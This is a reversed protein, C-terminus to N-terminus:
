SIRFLKYFTLTFLLLTNRCECHLCEKLLTLYCVIVGRGSCSQLWLNVRNCVVRLLDLMIFLNERWSLCEFFWIFYISTLLCMLYYLLHFSYVRMPARFLLTLVLSICECGNKSSKLHYFEQDMYIRYKFDQVYVPIYYFNVVILEMPCNSQNSM